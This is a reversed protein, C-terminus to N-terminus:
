GLEDGPWLHSFISSILAPVSYQKFWSVCLTEGMRKSEAYCARVQVPDVYGYDMERMPIKSPDVIGYVEGSSFFLFKEVKKREALKLLHQTGFVNPALTGVPDTGYYKPSAQSAAHIVFDVGEDLSLPEAVDHTILRLDRRNSYFEFRKEARERSRM